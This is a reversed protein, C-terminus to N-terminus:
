SIKLQQATLQVQAFAIPGEKPVAWILSQGQGFYFSLLAEDTKLGAHIRVGQARIKVCLQM